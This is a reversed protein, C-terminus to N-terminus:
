LFLEGVVLFREEDHQGISGDTLGVLKWFLVEPLASLDTYYLLVIDTITRWLLLVAAQWGRRKAVIEHSFLTANHSHLKAIKAVPVFLEIFGQFGLRSYPNQPRLTGQFFLLFFFSDWVISVMPCVVPSYRAPDISGWAFVPTEPTEKEHRSIRESYKRGLTWLGRTSACMVSDELFIRPSAWTRALVIRKRWAFLVFCRHCFQVGCALFKM